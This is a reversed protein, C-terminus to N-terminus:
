QGNFPDKPAAIGKSSLADRCSKYTNKAYDEAQVVGPKVSEPALPMIQEEIIQRHKLSANALKILFDNTNVGEKRAIQEEQSAEELYKEGKSLTSLATNSNKNQFLILSAELRKDSFLLALDAKALPDITILYQVKDRLAKLYWLPNDPLISGPYPMLYLIEAMPTPTPASTPTPMPASYGYATASCSRLVSVSLIAFALVFATVGYLYKRM